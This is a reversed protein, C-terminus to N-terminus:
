ARRVQEKCLNEQETAKFKECLNAFKTAQDALLNNLRTTDQQRLQQESMLLQTHTNRETVSPMIDRCERLLVSIGGIKEPIKQRLM